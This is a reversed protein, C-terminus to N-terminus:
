SHQAARRARRDQRRTRREFKSLTQSGSRLGRSVPSEGGRQELTEGINRFLRALLPVGVSFMLWLRLRRSVLAWIM